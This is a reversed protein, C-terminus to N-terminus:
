TERVLRNLVDCAVGKEPCPPITEFGMRRELLDPTDGM